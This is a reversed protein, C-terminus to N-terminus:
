RRTKENGDRYEGWKIGVPGEQIKRHARKLATMANPRIPLTTEVDAGDRPFRSQRGAGDGNGHGTPVTPAYRRYTAPTTM